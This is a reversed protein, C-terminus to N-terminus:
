QKKESARRDLRALELRAAGPEVFNPPCGTAASSLLRRAEGEPGTVALYVGLYFDAECSQDDRASRSEAALAATLLRDPNTSGLYFAIVPWPWQGQDLRKANAALEDRDDQGVRVRAVHLWIVTYSWSPKLKVAAVLDDVAAQTRGAYLEAIARKWYTGYANPVAGLSEDFYTAAEEPKGTAFLIDGMRGLSFSLDQKREAIDPQKAALARRIDLGERYAVLAGAFDGQARLAEGVKNLSVSLDRQWGPNGPDKVALARRIAVSERYAALAGTPDGEARRLDGLYELVVSLDRQWDTHSPDKAVLARAIDLEERYAVLAGALDGQAQLVEGVKNLSISLAAQWATNTPDKAAVARMIDLSERYAALAGALDDHDALVDGVKNLNGSLGRQWQPNDPDKAALNRVIDLGEQYATLAGTNDGQARLLDGIRILAMQTDARWGANGPDKAALDRAIALSEGDAALAGALDGQDELVGGVSALSVSVDRRWDTNGPDKAALDRAIALGERYSALAGALDGQALLVGGVKVLSVFVDRRSQTNDPDKAAVDRMIALSERYAALAGALDGATVLADGLRTLGSALYRRGTDSPDKAAVDRAIDLAERYAALAGTLDGESVLVLGVKFLSTSLDSRWGVNAPDKDVLDRMIALCERYTALAGVLDGQALLADGIKALSNNLDSRWTANGPEKAVLDRFIDAAKRAYDLALQTAGLRSYTGSFLSFMVGQSRRVEPDNETRSVLQTVAAEARELIRRVTEARMGEVNQLGQALDFVVADITSKAAGFNREARTAESKAIGRQEDAIQRQEIAVGRQWYALAVLGLAVLLGASLSASLINRRRTAGRRSEAIFAQTTQTPVPADQPRSAIWHEAEELVPSRLLLGRPGPRGDPSWRRAAEGFETHKRIWDINTALAQALHNASEDFRTDDDFFIFNLRALAEPVAKDDLRRRVVPAFRKNLSAAFAVERQCVDSAISDPSLVFVITDAQAILAEIRKWWDEFAHIESRDILPEIGRAKLAAELRDAFAMDKRSYSIFIKAKAKTEAMDRGHGIASSM